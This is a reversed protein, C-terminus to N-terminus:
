MTTITRPKNKRTKRSSKGTRRIPAHMANSDPTTSTTVILVRNFSRTSSRRGAGVCDTSSEMFTFFSALPVRYTNSSKSDFKPPSSTGSVPASPSSDFSAFSFLSGFRIRKSS